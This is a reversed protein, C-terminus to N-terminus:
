ILKCAIPTQCNSAAKRCLQSRTNKGYSIGRRNVLGVPPIGSHTLHCHNVPNNAFNVADFVSRSRRGGGCDTMLAVRRRAGVDINVKERSTERIIKLVWGAVEMTDM